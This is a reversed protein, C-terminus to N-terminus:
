IYDNAPFPTKRNGTFAYSVKNKEKDFILYVNSIGPINVVQNRPLNVLCNAPSRYCRSSYFR